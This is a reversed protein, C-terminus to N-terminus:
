RRRPASSIAHAAPSCPVRNAFSIRKPSIPSSVTRYAQSGPTAGSSMKAASSEMAPCSAISAVGLASTQRCGISVTAFDSRPRSRVRWPSDSVKRQGARRPSARKLDSRDLERAGQSARASDAEGGQGEFLPLHGRGAFARALGQVRADGQQDTGRDRGDHVDEPGGGARWARPQHPTRRWQIPCRTRGM